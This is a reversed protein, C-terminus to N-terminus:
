VLCTLGWSVVLLKLCKSKKCNCSVSQLSALSPPHPGAEPTSGTFPQNKSLRVGSNSSNSDSNQSLKYMSASAHHHQPPQPLLHQVLKPDIIDFTIDGQSHLSQAASVSTSSTIVSNGDASSIARSIQSESELHKDIGRRNHGSEGPSSISQSHKARKNSSNSNDHINDSDPGSNERSQLGVQGNNGNGTNKRDNDNAGGNSGENLQSAPSKSKARSKNTSKSSASDQRKSAKPVDVPVPEDSAEPATAGAKTTQTLNRKNSRPKSGQNRCVFCV